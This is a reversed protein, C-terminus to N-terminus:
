VEGERGKVEEYVREEAKAVRKGGATQTYRESMEPAYGEGPKQAAMEAVWAVDGEQVASAWANRNATQGVQPPPNAAAFPTAAARPQAEPNRGPHSRRSKTLKQRAAPKRAPKTDKPPSPTSQRSKPSIRRPRLHLPLVRPDTDPQASTPDLPAPKHPRLHPPISKPATQTPTPKALALPQNLQLISSLDLDPQRHDIGFLLNTLIFLPLFTDLGFYYWLLFLPAWTLIKSALQRMFNLLLIQSIIAFTDAYTESDKIQPFEGASAPLHLFSALRTWDPRSIDFELLRKSPVLDRIRNYHALYVERTELGAMDGGYVHKQITQAGRLFPGFFQADNKVIVNYALSNQINSMTSNMAELWEDPDRNLLIVKADPYAEILDEAFYACPADIVTDHRGLFKDFEVRGYKPGAAQFKAELAENWLPLDRQYNAIATNMNYPDFGLKILAAHMSNTGTMPMGLVLVKKIRIYKNSDADILRDGNIPVGAAPM